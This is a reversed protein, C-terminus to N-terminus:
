TFVVVNMLIRILGTKVLLILSFNCFQFKMFNFTYRNPMQQLMFIAAGSYKNALSLSDETVLDFQWLSNHTVLTDNLYYVFSFGTGLFTPKINSM